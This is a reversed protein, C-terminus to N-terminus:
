LLFVPKAQCFVSPYAFIYYIFMQWTGKAENRLNQERIQKMKKEKYKSQWNKPQKVDCQTNCKQCNMHM